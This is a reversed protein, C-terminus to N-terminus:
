VPGIFPSHVACPSNIRGLFQFPSDREGWARHVSPTKKPNPNEEEARTSVELADGHSRSLHLLIFFPTCPVDARMDQSWGRGASARQHPYPPSGPPGPSRGLGLLGALPFPCSTHSLMRKM